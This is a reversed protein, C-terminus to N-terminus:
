HFTVGVGGDDYKFTPHGTERRGKIMMIFLREDKHSGTCPCSIGKGPTGGKVNM